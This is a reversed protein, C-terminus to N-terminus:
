EACSNRRPVGGNGPGQRSPAPLPLCHRRKQQFGIRDRFREVAHHRQLVARQFQLGPRDMREAAPVPRALGGEQVDQGPEQLAVAARDADPAFLHMKGGGGIRQGGPDRDDGLFQRRHRFHGHGLVDKQAALRPAATEDDVVLPHLLVGAADDAFGAEVEVRCLLHGVEAERLDLQDLDGARQRAIGFDDDHVFGGRGDAFM